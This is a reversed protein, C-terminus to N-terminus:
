RRFCVSLTSPYLPVMHRLRAIQMPVSHCNRVRLVYNEWTNFDILNAAAGSDITMEIGVGGVKFRFVNAGMVYCIDEDVKNATKSDISRDQTSEEYVAKIRKSPPVTENSADNLRKTCWKAFHGFSRCKLCQAGKAICAPSGRLHGRRGCGFCIRNDIAFRRDSPLQDSPRSNSQVNWNAKDDSRFRSQPYAYQRRLDGSFGPTRYGPPQHSIKRAFYNQANVKHVTEM